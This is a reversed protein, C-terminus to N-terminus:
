EGEHEIVDLPQMGEMCEIDDISQMFDEIADQIVEALKEIDGSYTFGENALWVKALKYCKTDFTKM